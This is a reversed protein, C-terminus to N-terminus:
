VFVLRTRLFYLAPRRLHTLNRFETATVPHAVLVCIYAFQELSVQRRRRLDTVQDAVSDRRVDKFFAFRKRRNSVFNKGAKLLM